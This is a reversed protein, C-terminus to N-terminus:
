VPGWEDGPQGTGKISIDNVKKVNVPLTVALLINKVTDAVDTETQPLLDVSIPSNTLRAMIEDAIENVTPMPPLQSIVYQVIADLEEPSLSMKLITAEQATSVIVSSDVILGSVFIVNPQSSTQTVVVSDIGLLYTKVLTIDNLTTIIEINNSNIQITYTINPQSYTINQSINLAQIATSTFIDPQSITSGLTVTQPQISILEVVTGFLSDTSVTINGASVVRSVSLEPQSSQSVIECNNVGIQGGTALEVLGITANIACNNVFLIVSKNLQSVASDITLSINGATIYVTEILDSYSSSNNVISNNATVVISYTLGLQSVNSDNFVNNALLPIIEVLEPQTSQPQEQVSDVSINITEILVPQDVTSSTTTDLVDLSIELAGPSWAASYVPTSYNTGDYYVFGAKYSHGSTGIFEYNIDVTENGTSIVPVSGYASSGSGSVIQSDSPDSGEYISWYLYGGLKASTSQIDVTVNGAILEELLQIQSAQSTLVQECSQALLSKTIVTEPQTVDSSVSISNISLPIVSTVSLSPQSSSISQSSNDISINTIETYDVEIEISYLRIAPNADTAVWGFNQLPNSGSGNVDNVTWASSTNPNTTWTETYLTPTTNAINTITGKSYLTSNVRLRTSISVTSTTTKNGYWRVRVHNIVSNTPVTFASFGFVLNGASTGHTLYTTTDPYDNVEDWRVGATGTWTGAVSFDSSPARIQTAM